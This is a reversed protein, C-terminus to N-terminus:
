QQRLLLGSIALANDRVTEADLRFRPGRALLRNEPDRTLLDSSSKSAQRYTASMVILKQMDKINWGSRIFETALWDLLEPHSPREGQVGFDEVTKVLGTGFYQQWFRNVTVRATLPHSPDVLWLAFGLRNTPAGAPWSPLIAPLLPGVKEGKQDYEGRMLIFTERRKTMEKAVMTTPIAKEISSNEERWKAVQDSLQKFDPSTLRRYFNRVLTQQTANFTKTAAFLGAIEPSVTEADDLDKKFTFSAAGQQTVIKLLFKNEGAALDVTVRMPGEGVEEKTSREAVLKDNVWLKFLDDARVSIEVPLAKTVKFKRYLYYAGHIGHLDQVLLNAKGDEFDAKARWKNEDRVGPYTKKLDIENEPEYVNTLGQALSTTKFPGIAQWPEQKPPALLQVLDDDQAASLRFHGLARKSASAEYRLHVVLSAHEKIPVAEAPLFLAAHPEAIAAPDAQWGTEAKGDIATAVENGSRSSDALAKAFKIKTPKSAKGEQDPYRIEAQFESLRFGGDDARSAGKNPLSDDPIAELRLAALIGAELPLTIEHVDKPANTGTALISKDELQKLTAGESSKLEAATLTTWGTTLQERWKSEWAVQAKDLQPMPQDLKAQSTELEKKLWEVREKQKRSPVKIFPDPNPRNGDMVSEDLNNFISYLGYYERHTIPDYKHTHCRACTMTLGLWITSATEVRDFTYKAQYEETIAGGEGTSMNCRIYGSAIKQEVGAEPLLDGALQEITFQDFPKNQNFANIVWERYKWMSRES